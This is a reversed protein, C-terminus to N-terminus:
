DFDFNIACHGLTTRSYGHPCKAPPVGIGGTAFNLPKKSGRTKECSAFAKFKAFHIVDESSECTPHSSLGLEACSGDKLQVWEFGNDPFSACLNIECRACLNEACTADKYPVLWHTASCYGQTFIFYCQGTPEHYVLGRENHTLDCDCVGVSENLPKSYLIMNKACPGTTHERHCTGVEGGAGGDSTGSSSGNLAELYYLDQANPCLRQRQNSRHVFLILIFTFAIIVSATFVIPKWKNSDGM